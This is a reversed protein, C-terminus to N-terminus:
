LVLRRLLYNYVVVFSSLRVLFEYIACKLLNSAVHCAGLLDKVPEEHIDCWLLYYVGKKISM